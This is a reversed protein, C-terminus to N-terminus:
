NFHELFPCEGKRTNAKCIETMQALTKKAQKLESLKEEIERVKLQIQRQIKGCEDSGVKKFALLEKIDKLSFGLQQMRKIFRLREIDEETYLRYGGQSKSTYPLLGRKEYYRITEVPVETEESFKSIKIKMNM